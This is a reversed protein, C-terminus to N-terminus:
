TKNVKKWITTGDHKDEIAIGLELLNSRIQDALQWNKQKKTTKYLLEWLRKIVLPNNIEKQCMSVLEFSTMTLWYKPRVFCLFSNYFQNIQEKDLQVVNNKIKIKKNEYFM